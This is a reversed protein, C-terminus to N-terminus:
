KQLLTDIQGPNISAGRAQDATILGGRVMKVLSQELSIMGVDLSTQIINDLQFAKRDRIASRVGQTAILIETAPKRGGRLLPLLKQSLVARLVSALQFRIQEQKQGEFVDVIRNVTEAASNTHLTAFVLHGTEAIQLASEITEIDRMEGILVVDPDQRLVARLANPWSLFDSGYERHDVVGLGRPFIFEVPDELTVIHKPMTLNILNLLSAITTSKGSGTPGTVLVLGNPFGSFNKVIQPLGLEEVTSIKEPIVRLAIAYNGLQKFINVRFRRNELAYTLDVEHISDVSINQKNRILEIVYQNILAPSLLDTNVVKLSGDVRIMARYGTTLHLDSAKQSVTFRLLDNLDFKSYDAKEPLKPMGMSQSPLNSPQDLNQLPFSTNLIPNIDIAKVQDALNGLNKLKADFDESPDKDSQVTSQVEPANVYSFQKVGQDNVKLEPTYVSPVPNTVGIQVEMPLNNEPVAQTQPQDGPTGGTKVGSVAQLAFDTPPVVSGKPDSPNNINVLPM